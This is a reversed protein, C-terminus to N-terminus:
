GAQGGHELSRTAPSDKPRNNPIVKAPVGVPVGYDPVSGRVAAIAGISADCGIHIDSLIKAGSDIMAGVGIASAGL